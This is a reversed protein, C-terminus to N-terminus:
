RWLRTSQGYKASVLSVRIRVVGPIRLCCQGLNRGDCSRVPVAMARPLCKGLRHSEPSGRRNLLGGEIENSVDPVSIMALDPTPRSRTVRGIFEGRGDYVPDEFNFCHDATLIYETTSNRVGFGSTCWAAGTPSRSLISGGHWPSFDNIRSAQQVPAERVTTTTVGVNPLRRMLDTAVSQPHRDSFSLVLRNGDVQVGVGNFVEDPDNGVAARITDADQNLEGLSYRAPAVRVKAFKGAQAVTDSMTVPVSGKWWLAVGDDELVIGAYGPYSGREVEARLHDAAKILPIQRAMEVPISQTAAAVGNSLTSLGVVLMAACLVAKFRRPSIFRRRDIM